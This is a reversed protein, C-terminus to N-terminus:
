RWATRWSQNIRILVEDEASGKADYCDWGAIKFVISSAETSDWALPSRNPVPSAQATSSLPLRAAFAPTTAVLAACQIFARRDIRM